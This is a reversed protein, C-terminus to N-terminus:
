KLVIKISYKFISRGPTNVDELRASVLHETDLDLDAVLPDRSPSTSNLVKILVYPVRLVNTSSLSSSHAWSFKM